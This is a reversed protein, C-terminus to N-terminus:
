LIKKELEKIRVEHNCLKENIDNLRADIQDLRFTIQDLVSFLKHNQATVIEALEKTIVSDRLDLYRQLFQRFSPTLRLERKGKTTLLRSILSKVDLKNQM